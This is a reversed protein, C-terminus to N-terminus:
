PEINVKLTKEITAAGQKATAKIEYAGPTFGRTSAEYYVPRSAGPAGDPSDSALPAIVEGNQLLEFTIEPAEKVAADPYITVFLPIKEGARVHNSLTPVLLTGGARFLSNVESPATKEEIMRRVMMLDSLNLGPPTEPVDLVSSKVGARTGEMDVVASELTYQGPPLGLSETYIFESGRVADMRDLPGHSPLDRAFRARVEGTADKVLFLASAHLQYSQKADDKVFTLQSLPLELVLGQEGRFHLASVAFPVAGPAPRTTVAKLLATEFPPLDPTSRGIAPPLAFYGARSQLALPRGVPTVSIRHFSGDLKSAPPTYTLEYYTAMDETIRDVPRRLDNTGRTFFGGTSEALDALSNVTNERISEDAQEIAKVQMPDVAVGTRLGASQERRVTNAAQSLLANASSNDNTTVLGRADISYFSVHSRNAAGVVENFYSQLNPPVKLGEAFYIVAKRGPLRYQDRVLTMLGDLSAHGEQQASLHREFELMQIQLAALKPRTFAGVDPTIGPGVAPDGAELIENIKDQLIRPDDPVGFTNLLQGRIVATQRSFDVSAAGAARDVAERLLNADNTFPQLINLRHEISFVALYTNPSIPRSLLDLAAKRSLVRGDQQLRDFVLSILQIEGASTTAAPKAVRSNGRKGEEERSVRNEVLRFSKPQVAIGNDTVTVDRPALDRVPRGKKDRAVLDLHIEQVTVNPLAPTSDPTAIPPAIQM